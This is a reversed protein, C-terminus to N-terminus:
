PVVLDIRQDAGSEVFVEDTTEYLVNFSLDLVQIEIVRIGGVSPDIDDRSYNFTAIGYGNLAITEQRELEMWSGFYRIEGIKATLKIQGSTFTQDSADKVYVRVTIPEMILNKEPSTGDDKKCFFSFALLMILLIKSIKM